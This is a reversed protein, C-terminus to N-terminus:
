QTIIPLFVQKANVLLRASACQIIIGGTASFSFPFCFFSGACHLAAVHPLPV